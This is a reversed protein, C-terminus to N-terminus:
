SSGIVTGIASISPDYKTSRVRNKAYERAYGGEKIDNPYLFGAIDGVVSSELAVKEVQWFFSIQEERKTM